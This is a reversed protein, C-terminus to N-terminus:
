AEVSVTAASKQSALAAPFLRHSLAAEQPTVCGAFKKLPRGHALEYLFGAWMQLIADTFGFEFIGGTIAPFATEYGVDIQQWAQRGGTYELVELTRPKKTCFRACAKMGLVEVYWTNTQGPSIRQTKVTWPFEDGSDADVAQCLLAANDWTECPVIKGKGDPRQPVINSLVARVNRPRWGARFPVHCAHMGLDGMVGYEGNFQIMRKWNIPKDPNLDSSHLFCCTAEIIRGFAGAEIMDGIRQVAPFFPMQSNCRVFVEPHEGICTLIADNAPKDIGFPKEGLLHKGAKVTDCYFREHQIEVQAVEVPGAQDLAPEGVFELGPIAALVQEHEVALLARDVVVDLLVLREEHDLAAQAHRDVAPPARHLFAVQQRHGGAPHM